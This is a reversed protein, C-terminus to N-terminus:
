PLTLKRALNYTDLITTTWSWSDVSVAGVTVTLTLATLLQLLLEDRPLFTDIDYNRRQNTSLTARM